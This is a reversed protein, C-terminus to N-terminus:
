AVRGRMWEAIRESLWEPNSLPHLHSAGPSLVLDASPLLRRLEAISERMFRSELEGVVVRAPPRLGGITARTDHAMALRVAGLACAVSVDRICFRIFDLLFDACRRDYVWAERAAILPTDSVSGDAYREAMEVVARADADLLSWVRRVCGCGFLRLKRSALTRTLHTLMPTPDTCTDWEGETM